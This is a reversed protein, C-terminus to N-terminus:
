RVNFCPFSWQPCFQKFYRNWHETCFFRKSGMKIVERARPAGGLVWFEWKWSLVMAFSMMRQAWRSEFGFAKRGEIPEEALEVRKNPELGMVKACSRSEVTRQLSRVFAM